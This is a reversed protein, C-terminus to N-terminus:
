NLMEGFEKYLNNIKEFREKTERRLEELKRREEEERASCRAETERLMEECKRKAEAIKGDTEAELSTQLRRINNLYIDASKQAAMFIDTVALSAEAISGVNEIKIARESNEATLRKNEEKLYAIEADLRKMEAEYRDIHPLLEKKSLSRLESSEM